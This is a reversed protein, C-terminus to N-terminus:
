MAAILEEAMAKEEKLEAETANMLARSREDIPLGKVISWKGDACTVPFSYMLGEEVGYAGEGGPSVVGMSVWTGEPTGNIWDRVHDCM